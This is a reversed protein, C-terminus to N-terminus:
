RKKDSWEDTYANESRWENDTRKKWWCKLLGFLLTDTPRAARWM